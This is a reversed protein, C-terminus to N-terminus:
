CDWTQSPFLIPEITDIEERSNEGGQIFCLSSPHTEEHHSFM